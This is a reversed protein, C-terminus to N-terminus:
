SYWQLMFANEWLNWLKMRRCSLTLSDSRSSNRITCYYYSEKTTKKKHRSAIRPHLASSLYVKCNTTFFLITCHLGTFDLSTWDMPKAHFWPQTNYIWWWSAHMLCNDSSNFQFQLLLSHTRIMPRCHTLVSLEALKTPNKVGVDCNLSCLFSYLCVPSTLRSNLSDM